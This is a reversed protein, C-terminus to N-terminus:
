SFLYSPYKQTQICDSSVKIFLLWRVAKINMYKQYLLWPHAKLYKWIGKSGNPTMEETEM